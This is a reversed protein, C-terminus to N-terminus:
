GMGPRSKMCHNQWSVSRGKLSSGSLTQGKNTSAPMTRFQRPRSRIETSEVETDVGGAARFLEGLLDTPKGLRCASARHGKGLVAMREQNIYM